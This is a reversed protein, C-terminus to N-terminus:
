KLERQKVVFGVMPIFVQESDITTFVIGNVTFIGSVAFIDSDYTKYKKFVPKDIDNSYIIVEHQPKDM